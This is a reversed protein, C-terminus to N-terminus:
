SQFMDFRQSSSPYRYAVFDPDQDVLEEIAKRSRKAGPTVFGRTHYESSSMSFLISEHDAGSIINGKDKKGFMSSLAFKSRRSSTPKSLVNNEISEGRQQQSRRSDELWGLSSRSTGFETYIGGQPPSGNYTASRTHPRLELGGFSQRRSESHFQPQPRTLDNHRSDFTFMTQPRLESPFRISSEVPLPPLAKESAIVNPVSGSNPVQNTSAISPMTKSKMTEDVILEYDPDYVGNVRSDIGDVRSFTPSPLISSPATPPSVAQSSMSAPYALTTSPLSPTSLHRRPPGGHDREVLYSLPPPPALPYDDETKVLSLPSGKPHKSFSKSSGTVLDWIKALGTKKRTATDLPHEDENVRIGDSQPLSEGIRPTPADGAIDASPYPYPYNFNDNQEQQLAVHMDMMSGSIGSAALSDRSRWGASLNKLGFFRTRRNPSMTSTISQLDSFSTTSYARPLLSSRDGSASIVSGPRLSSQSYRTSPKMALLINASDPSLTSYLSHLDAASNRSSKRVRSRELKEERRRREREEKEEQKVNVHEMIMGNELLTVERGPNHITFLSSTQPTFARSTRIKVIGTDEPSTQGGADYTSRRLQSYADRMRNDLQMSEQMAKAHALTEAELLLRQAKVYTELNKHRSAPERPNMSLHVKLNTESLIDGTANPRNPDAPLPTGATKAREEMQVLDTYFVDSERDWVGLGTVDVDAMDQDRMACELCIEEKQAQPKVYQPTMSDALPTIYTPQQAAIRPSSSVPVPIQSNSSLIPHSPYGTAQAQPYYNVLNATQRSVTIYDRPPSMGASPRFPATNQVQFSSSSDRAPRPEGGSEPLPTDTDKGQVQPISSFSTQQRAPLQSLPPSSQTANSPEMASSVEKDTLMAGNSTWDYSSNIYSPQLVGHSSSQPFFNTKSTPYRSGSLAFETYLGQPFPSISSVNGTVLGIPPDNLTSSHHGHPVAQLATAM